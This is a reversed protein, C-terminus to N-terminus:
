VYQMYKRVPDGPRFSDDTPRFNLLEFDIANYGLVDVLKIANRLTMAPWPSERFEDADYHLYWDAGLERHIQEVRETIKRLAFVQEYKQSIPSDDPFLEIHLLGKGLWKSAQEVTNDTSHHDLLYIYIGNDILHQIVHYIIDGENYACIIAVVRFPDPISDLLFAPSPSSEPSFSQRKREEMIGQIKCAEFAVAYAGYLRNRFEDTLPIGYQTQRDALADLDRAYGILIEGQDRIRSWKQNLGETLCWTQVEPDPHMRSCLYNSRGQKLSRQCFDDFSLARNMYSVARQNYVVKFGFKSLRYGLETDENGFRFLYNFVGNTLLFSRKCSARGGWFYTYDLVDGDKLKSYGFLLNGEEVIFKMLPTVTLEPSWDTYNLVAYYEEPFDRHSRLHEELLTPGTLDDDDLFYVIKGRAAFLGHNRASALGANNQYFYRLPLTGTFSEVTKRTEDTSGDDVVVIEFINKDLSQRGLSDLAARLMESRNFTSIVVSLPLGEVIPTHNKPLPM